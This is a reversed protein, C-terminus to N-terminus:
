RLLSPSSLDSNLAHSTAIPKNMRTLIKSRMIGHTGGFSPAFPPETLKQYAVYQTVPM